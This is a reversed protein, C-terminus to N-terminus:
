RNWVRRHERHYQRWRRRIVSFSKDALVRVQHRQDMHGGGEAGARIARRVTMGAPFFSAPVVISPLTQDSPPTTITVTALPESYQELILPKNAATLGPGSSSTIIEGLYPSNDSYVVGNGCMEIEVTYDATIYGLSGYTLDADQLTVSSGSVINTHYTAVVVGAQKFSIKTIRNRSDVDGYIINAKEIPATYAIAASEWTGPGYYRKGANYIASVVTQTDIKLNWFRINDVIGNLDYNL